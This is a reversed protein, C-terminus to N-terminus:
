QSNRPRGTSQWGISLLGAFSAAEAMLIRSAATREFRGAFFELRIVVFQLRADISAATSPTNAKSQTFGRKLNRISYSLARCM